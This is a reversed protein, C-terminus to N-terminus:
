SNDCKRFLWGELKSMFNLDKRASALFPIKWRVYTELM